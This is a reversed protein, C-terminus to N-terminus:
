GRVKEAMGGIAAILLGAIMFALGPFFVPVVAWLSWHWAYYAGYGGIVMGAALLLGSRFIFMCAFFLVPVWWGKWGFWAKAGVEFAVTYFAIAALGLAMVGLVGIAGLVTTIFNKM